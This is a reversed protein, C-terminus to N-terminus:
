NGSENKLNYLRYHGDKDMLVIFFVTKDGSVKAKVIMHKTDGGGSLVLPYVELIEAPYNDNPLRQYADAVIDAALTREEKKWPVKGRGILTSRARLESVEDGGSTEFAGALRTDATARAADLGTPDGLKGPTPRPAFEELTRLASAALRGTLPIKELEQLDATNFQGNAVHDREVIAFATEPLRKEPVLGVRNEASILILPKNGNILPHNGLLNQSAPGLSVPHPHRTWRGIAQDFKSLTLSSSVIPKKAFRFGGVREAPEIKFFGAPMSGYTIELVEGIEGAAGAARRPLAEPLIFLTLFVACFM